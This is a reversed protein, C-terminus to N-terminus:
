LLLVLGIVAMQVCVHVCSGGPRKNSEFNLVAECLTECLRSSKREAPWGLGGSECGKM